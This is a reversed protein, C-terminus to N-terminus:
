LESRTLLKKLLRDQLVYLLAFYIIIGSFIQIILVLPGSLALRGMVFVLVAMVLGAAARKCSSNWLDKLTLVGGSKAFYVATIFVESLVSAIAAGKAGWFPIMCLNLVLNVLAGMLVYRASEQRKGVPIFYLQELCNGIGMVPVLPLLFYILEESPLYDTGFFVPVLVHSVGILGFVAGLGLFMVIDLARKIGEKIRENDGGAFIYSMRASVVSNLVVFSFGKAVVIIRSAQEYYGNQSHDRTIVGILTKDLVMYAATAFSPVFYVFTNKFHQPLSELDPKASVLCRPLCLWMSLNALLITMASIFCYLVLDDSSKILLFIFVAGLVKVVGNTAAIVGLRELGTYFWTINLMEGVIYPTLALFFIRYGPVLLIVAGWVVLCIIGSIVTTLEIEWFLRSYEKPKDRHMAIERTGYAANGLLVIFIFWSIVSYSFSYTGVGEPELVRSLYPTTVLPVGFCILEYILRYIYNKKLDPQAPRDDTKNMM